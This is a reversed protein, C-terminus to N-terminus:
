SFNWLEHSTAQEYRAYKEGVKPPRLACKATCHCSGPVSALPNRWQVLCRSAFYGIFISFVHAFTQWLVWLQRWFIWSWWYSEGGRNFAKNYQMWYPNRLRLFVTPKQIPAPTRALQPVFFQVRPDKSFELTRALIHFVPQLNVFHPPIFGHRWNKKPIKPSEYIRLNRDDYNRYTQLGTAKYVPVYGELQTM